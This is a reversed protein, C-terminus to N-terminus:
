RSAFRGPVAPSAIETILKRTMAEGFSHSDYVELVFSGTGGTVNERYCHALGGSLQVDAHTGSVPHDNIIALGHIAVGAEVADDRAAAIARAAHNTGDGRADNGAALITAALKSAAVRRAIAVARCAVSWSRRWIPGRAARVPAVLLCAALALLAIRHM